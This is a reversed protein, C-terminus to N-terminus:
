KKNRPTKDDNRRKFRSWKIRDDRNMQKKSARIKGLNLFILLAVVALIGFFLTDM